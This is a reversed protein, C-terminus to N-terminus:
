IICQAGYNNLLLEKCELILTSQKRKTISGRERHVKLPRSVVSQSINLVRAIDDLKMCANRIAIKCMRDRKKNTTKELM